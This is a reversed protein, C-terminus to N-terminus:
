KIASCVRTASGNERENYLSFKWWISRSSRWRFTRPASPRQQRGDPGPVWLPSRVGHFEVSNKKLSAQKELELEIITRAEAPIEAFEKLKKKYKVLLADKDKWGEEGAGERYEESSRWFIGVSRKREGASLDEV